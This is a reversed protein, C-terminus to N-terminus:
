RMCGFGSQDILLFQDLVAATARARGSKGRLKSLNVLVFRVCHLNSSRSTCSTKYSDIVEKLLLCARPRCAWPPGPPLTANDLTCNADFPGNEWEGRPSRGTLPLSPLPPPTVLKLLLRLPPPVSRLHAATSGAYVPVMRLHM